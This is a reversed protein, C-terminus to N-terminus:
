PPKAEPRKQWLKGADEESPGLEQDFADIDKQMSEWETATSSSSDESNTSEEGVMIM